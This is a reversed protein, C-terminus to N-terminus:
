DRVTGVALVRVCDQWIKADLQQRQLWNLSDWYAGQERQHACYDLCQRDIGDQVDRDNTPNLDRQQAAAITPAISPPTVISAAALRLHLPRM